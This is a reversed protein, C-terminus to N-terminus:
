TPWHTIFNFDNGDSLLVLRTGYRDVFFGTGQRAYSLELQKALFQLLRLIFTPVFQTVNGNAHRVSSSRFSGAADSGDVSEYKFRFTHKKM